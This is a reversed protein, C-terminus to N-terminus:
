GIVHLRAAQRHRCIVAVIVRARRQESGGHEMWATVTGYAELVLLYRYAILTTLLDRGFMKPKKLKTGYGVLPIKGWGCELYLIARSALLPSLM